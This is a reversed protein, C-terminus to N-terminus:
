HRSLLHILNIPWNPLPEESLFYYFFAVAVAAVFAYIAM